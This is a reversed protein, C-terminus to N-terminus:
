LEKIQSQYAPSCRFDIQVMTLSCLSRPTEPGLRIDLRATNRATRFHLLPLFNTNRQFNSAVPCKRPACDHCLSLRALYCRRAREVSGEFSGLVPLWRCNNHTTSFTWKRHQFPVKSYVQNRSPLPCRSLHRFSETAGNFQPSDTSSPRM